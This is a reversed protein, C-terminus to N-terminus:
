VGFHVHPVWHMRNDSTRKVTWPMRANGENEDRTRATGGEHKLQAKQTSTSADKAGQSVDLCRNRLERTAKYLGWSVLADTLDKDRMEEYTLRAMDQSLNDDVEWLTGIVQRFGALQFASILHISEDVFRADHLQGTGCASLYALFPSHERLNMEMLNAVTFRDTEWDKLLLRSQSPDSSDTLDHRAFHLINCSSLHSMIEQKCQRPEVPHIAMSECLHHVLAVENTAFDLPNYNPTDQM